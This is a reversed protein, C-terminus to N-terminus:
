IAVLWTAILKTVARLAATTISATAIPSASSAIITTPLMNYRHNKVINGNRQNHETICLSKTSAIATSKPNITFAFIPYTAALSFFITLTVIKVM